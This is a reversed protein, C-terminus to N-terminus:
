AIFCNFPLPPLVCILVLCIISAFVTLYVDNTADCELKNTVYYIRDYNVSSQIGIELCYIPISNIKLM